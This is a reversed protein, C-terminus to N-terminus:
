FSALLSLGKQLSFWLVLVQVFSEALCRTVLHNALFGLQSGDM